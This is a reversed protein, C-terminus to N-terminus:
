ELYSRILDILARGAVAPPSQSHRATALVPLRAATAPSQDSVAPRPLRYLKEPDLSNTQTMWPAQDNGTCASAGLGGDIQSVGGSPACHPCISSTSNPTVHGAASSHSASGISPVTASAMLCPQLATATWIVAILIGVFRAVSPRSWSKDFREKV